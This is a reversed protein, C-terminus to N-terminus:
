STENDNVDGKRVIIRQGDFELLVDRCDRTVGLADVWKKPISVKTNYSNKSANGGAKAFIINAKRTEM